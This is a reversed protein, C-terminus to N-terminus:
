HQIDWTSLLMTGDIGRHVDPFSLLVVMSTGRLPKGRQNKVVISSLKNEDSSFSLKWCPSTKVTEAGEANTAVWTSVFIAEVRPSSINRPHYPFLVLSILAISFFAEQGRTETKKGRGVM